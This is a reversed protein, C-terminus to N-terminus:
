LSVTQLPTGVRLGSPDAVLGVRSLRVTDWDARAAGTASPGVALTPTVGEVTGDPIVTVDNSWYPGDGDIWVAASGGWAVVLDVWFFELTAPTTLPLDIVTSATNGLGLQFTAPAVLTTYDVFAFESVTPGKFGFDLFSDFTGAARLRGSLWAAGGIRPIVCQNDKRLESEPSLRVVGLGATSIVAATGATLTWPTDGYPFDASSVRTFDDRFIERREGVPGVCLWTGPTRQAFEATALPWPMRGRLWPATIETGNVIARVVGNARDIATVTGQITAM